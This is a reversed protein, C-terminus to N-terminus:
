CCHCGASGASMVLMHVCTSLRRAMFAQCTLLVWSKGCPVTALCLVCVACTGRLRCWHRMPCAGCVTCSLLLSVEFEDKLKEAIQGMGLKKDVTLRDDLILRLLWPTLVNYNVDEELGYFDELLERDEEIVTDAPAMADVPDYRCVTIYVPTLRPMHRTQQATLNAAAM